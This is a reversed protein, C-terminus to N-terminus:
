MDLMLQKFYPPDKIFSPLAQGPAIATNILMEGTPAFLAMAGVEPHRVQYQMLADRASEPNQLVDSQALLQGLPELGNGLDDFFFQSASALFGSLITLNAKVDQQERQWSYFGYASAALASVFVFFWVARHFARAFPTHLELRM